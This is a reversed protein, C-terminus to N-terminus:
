NLVTEYLSHDVIKSYPQLTDVGPLGEIRAVNVLHDIEELGVGVKAVM